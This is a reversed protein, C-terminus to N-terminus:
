NRRLPKFNSGLVSEQVRKNHDLTDTKPVDTYEGTGGTVNELADDSLATQEAKEATKEQKKKENLM